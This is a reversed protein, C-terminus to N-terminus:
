QQYFELTESNFFVGNQGIAYKDAIKQSLATWEQNKTQIQAQLQLWQGNLNALDRQLRLIEVKEDTTLNPLEVAATETQPTTPDLTIVEPM